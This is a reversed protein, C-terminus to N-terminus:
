KTTVSVGPAAGPFGDLLQSVRKDAGEATRVDGGMSPDANLWVVDGTQLDVLGAYGLHIGPPIYAGLLVAGLVQAAKRGSTGYSDHTFFFLAYDAGQGLPKLQNAGTGLTWDFREKKTPLRNGRFLKHQIISNAVARFLSRYDALTTAEGGEPDEPFVLRARGITPNRELATAMLQRAQATWDANPEDVGGVTMSGVRVEPRFVAVTVQRDTPLAFGDKVASKEQAAAAGPMLLFLAALAALWNSGM